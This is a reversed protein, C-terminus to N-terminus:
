GSDGYGYRTRRAGRECGVGAPTHPWRTLALRQRLDELDTEPIAIRFGHIDDSM